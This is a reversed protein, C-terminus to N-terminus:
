VQKRQMGDLITKLGATVRDLREANHAQCWLPSWATGAPATCGPEACRKDTCYKASNYEHNPDRHPPVKSFETM